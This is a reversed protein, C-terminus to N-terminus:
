HAGVFPTFEIGVEAFNDLSEQMDARWREPHTSLPPAVVRVIGSQIVQLSCHACPIFPWVFLTYGNVPERRFLLANEEAHLVRKIKRDRDGYLHPSDDMGKPFGNFGQSAVTKDPRVVVAGCKTSPDRSALSVHKAEGMFYADWWELGRSHDLCPGGGVSGRDVLNVDGCTAACGCSPYDLCMGAM